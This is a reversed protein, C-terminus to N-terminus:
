WTFLQFILHFAAAVNKLAQPTRSGLAWRVINGGHSHGVLFHPSAPFYTSNAAIHDILQKAAARRDGESNRGSWKFKTILVDGGITETITKSFASDPDTWRANTDFTGHILTLIIPTRQQVSEMIIENKRFLAAINQPELSRLRERWINEGIRFAKRESYSPRVQETEVATSRGLAAM